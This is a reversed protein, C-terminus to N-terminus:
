LGYCALIEGHYVRHYDNSAYYAPVLEPALGAPALDGRHVVRCEFHLVGQEVIPSRVRRSPVPRLGSHAWKNENRGSVKGWYDLTHGLSAPLINVTFDGGEEILRYTNRSPRVLVTFINRGWIHGIAGWGFTMGGPRGSPDVSVLLAGDRSLAEMTPLFAERVDIDVKQPM